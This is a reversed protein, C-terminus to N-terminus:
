TRWESQFKHQNIRSNTGSIDKIRSALLRIAAIEEQTGIGAFHDALESLLAAFTLYRDFGFDPETIIEMVNRAFETANTKPDTM